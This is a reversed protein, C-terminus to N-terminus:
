EEFHRLDWWKGKEDRFPGRGDYRDAWVKHWHLYTEQLLEPDRILPFDIDAATGKQHDSILKIGDCHSYGKDFYIKQQEASRRVEDFQPSDRGDIIMDLVLRCIKETFEIRTMGM